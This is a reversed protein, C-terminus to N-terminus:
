AVLDKTHETAAHKAKMAEASQEASVSPQAHRHVKAASVSDRKLAALQALFNGLRDLDDAELQTGGFRNPTHEGVAQLVQTVLRTFHHLGEDHPTSDLARIPPAPSQEPVATTDEERIPGNIGEHPQVKPELNETVTVSDTSRKARHEAVRKRTAARVDEVSKKGTAISLLEYARSQGLNPVFKQRFAEFGEEDCIAQAEALYCGASNYHQKAKDDSKRAQELHAAIRKALSQLTAPCDEQVQEATFRAQTALKTNNGTRSM